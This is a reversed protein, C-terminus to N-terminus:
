VACVFPKCCARRQKPVARVLDEKRSEERPGMAAPPASSSRRISCDQHPDSRAPANLGLDGGPGLACVMLLSRLLKHVPVSMEVKNNNEWRMSEDIASSSNGRKRESEFNIGRTLESLSLSLSLARSVVLFAWRSVVRPEHICLHSIRRDLAVLKSTCRVKEMIKKIMPM